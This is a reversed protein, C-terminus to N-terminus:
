AAPDADQFEKAALGMRVVDMMRGDIYVDRRGVGERRFGCAEYARIARENHELVELFVRELRLAGFAYRLAVRIAESGYGRSWLSAEGIVIGLRAERRRRDVKHLGLNGVHEGDVEIAFVQEDAAKEYDRYWREEEALSVASGRGLLRNIHPDGFWRVLRRLDEKSLPRLLVREGQLVLRSEIM